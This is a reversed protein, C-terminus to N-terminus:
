THLLLFKYSGLLAFINDLTSESLSCSHYKFFMLRLWNYQINQISVNIVRLALMCSNVTLSWKGTIPSLIHVQGESGHYFQTDTHRLQGHTLM